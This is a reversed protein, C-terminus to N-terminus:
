LIINPPDIPQTVQNSSFDTLMECIEAGVLYSLRNVGGYWVTAIHACEGEWSIDLTM